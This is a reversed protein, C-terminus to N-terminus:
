RAAALAPDLQYAQALHKDAAELEGLKLLTCGMLFYTLATSRDLSLAQDLALRAAHYDGCRYHALGLTQQVALSTPFRTAAPTLFEVALEPHGTRLAAKAAEVPVQPDSPAAAQQKRYLTRLVSKAPSPAHPDKKGAAKAAISVRAPSHPRAAQAGSASDVASDSALIVAPGAPEPPTPNGEAAKLSEAYEANQPEQEAAKRYHELAEDPHGEADLLTALCHHAQAEFPADALV